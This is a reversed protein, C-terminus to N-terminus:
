FGVEIGPNVAAINKWFREAQAVHKRLDPFKGEIYAELARVYCDIVWVFDPHAENRLKKLERVKDEVFVEIVEDPDFLYLVDMKAKQGGFMQMGTSGSENILEKMRSRNWAKKFMPATGVPIQVMEMLKDHTEQISLKPEPSPAEQPKPASDPQPNRVPPNPPTGEVAVEAKLVWGVFEANERVFRVQYWDSDQRLVQVIADKNLVGIREVKSGTSTYVVVNDQMPRVWTPGTADASPSAGEAIIVIMPIAVLSFATGFIARRWVM